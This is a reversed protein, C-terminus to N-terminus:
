VKENYTKGCYQITGSYSAHITVNYDVLAHDNSLNQSWPAYMRPQSTLGCHRTIALYQRVLNWTAPKANILFPFPVFISNIPNSGRNHTAPPCPHQSTLGEVLGVSRFTNQIIPARVDENLDAMVLVLDGETQWQKIATMLESLFIAKPL